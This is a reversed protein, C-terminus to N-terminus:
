RGIVRRRVCDTYNLECDLGGAWRYWFSDIKAAATYCDLLDTTCGGAIAPRPAGAFGALVVLALLTKKVM